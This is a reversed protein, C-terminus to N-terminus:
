KVDERELVIREGVSRVVGDITAHLHAGLKGEPCAAIQQGIRVREGVRVVPESPAGIGQRVSLEVHQPTLAQLTDQPTGYYQLVGARAAVRKTPALRSERMPNPVTREESKPYRIGAKGLEKKIVANVSRPQLGMPCAFVECVGCESCLAASQIVPDTLVHEMREYALRRMIRHPELPHGLLHRPCLQTCYSCQICAAQARVKMQQMNASAARCREKPLALIGSTTKGVFLTDLADLEFYKGMMPGGSVIRCNERTIGGAAAICDTFPTGIPASLIMPTRVEGTVTLYRRTLPKGDFADFAALLTGVNMVACGVSLPINLPPVTRGTVEYVVVQEDGAPYFSETTHIAISAGARDIAGCLADMEPLYSKKLCFTAKSIGLDSQIRMLASVLKEAEHRMTYRDTGLLPECELGNIIIHEIAGNLKVHTPFGAGGMGVLGASRVQEATQRM